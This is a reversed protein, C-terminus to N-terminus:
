LTKELYIIDSEPNQNYAETEEFGLKKYIEVASKLRILTDLKMTKYGLDKAKEIITVALAKGIGYGQYKPKLYLRKMECTQGDLKKVGVVGIIEDEYKAVILAGTPSNYPAPLSKLEEEFGQFCLSFGLFEQYEKFLSKVTELDEQKAEIIQYEMKSEFYKKPYTVKELTLGEAKAATGAKRRDKALIIAEFQAISIKGMGVDLLTGVIARVMGRLFRNAKIHFEWIEGNKVWEALEITCNFTKVDTKVKSFSQFDTHNYLVKAALNMQEFDFNQFYISVFNYQFPLKQNSIRYIYSRSLADFRSNTNPALKYINRIAIDPHLIKNLRQILKKTEELNLESDFHAYQQNAHVGTDTRSSGNIRIEQNLVMSLAKELEEQISTANPQLQWGHFNTGLYQVELFYRM